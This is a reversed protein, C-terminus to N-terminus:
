ADCGNTVNKDWHGLPPGRLSPFHTQKMRTKKSSCKWFTDPISTSHPLLELPLLALPFTSSAQTYRFASPSSTFFSINAFMRLSQFLLFCPAESISLPLLFLCSPCNPLSHHSNMQAHFCFNHWPLLPFISFSAGEELFASVPFPLCLTPDPTLVDPESSSRPNLICYFLAQVWSLM